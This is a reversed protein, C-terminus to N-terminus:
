SINQFVGVIDINNYQYNKIEVYIDGTLNKNAIEQKVYKYGAISSFGDYHYTIRGSPWRGDAYNGVGSNTFIFSVEYDHNFWSTNLKIYVKKGSNMDQSNFNEPKQLLYYKNDVSLGHSKSTVDWLIYNKEQNLSVTKGGIILSKVNKGSINWSKVKKGNIIISGM